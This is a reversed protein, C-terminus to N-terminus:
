WDLIEFRPISDHNCISIGTKQKLHLSLCQQFEELHRKSEEVKEM